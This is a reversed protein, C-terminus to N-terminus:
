ELSYLQACTAWIFKPYRVGYRNLRHFFPVTEIKILTHPTGPICSHICVFTGIWSSKTKLHKFYTLAKFALVTGTVNQYLFSTRETNRIRSKEGPDKNKDMGCGLDLLLVMLPPPSFFNLGVM